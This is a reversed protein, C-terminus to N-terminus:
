NAKATGLGRVVKRQALVYLAMAANIAINGLVVSLLPSVQGRLFLLAYGMGQAMLGFSFVLLDPQRRYAVSAISLAMAMVGVFLMVFMTPVHLNM